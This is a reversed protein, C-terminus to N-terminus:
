FPLKHRQPAQNQAVERPVLYQIVRVRWDGSPQKTFRFIIRPRWIVQVKWM